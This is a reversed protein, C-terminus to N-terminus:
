LFSNQMLKFLSEIYNLTPIRFLLVSFWVEKAFKQQVSLTGKNLVVIVVFFINKKRESSSAIFTQFKQAM